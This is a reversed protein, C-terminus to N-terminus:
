SGSAPDSGFSRRAGFTHVSPGWKGTLRQASCKPVDSKLFKATHFNRRPTVCLLRLLLCQKQGTTTTKVKKWIGKPRASRM